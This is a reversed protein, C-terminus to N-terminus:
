KIKFQFEARAKEVKFTNIKLVANATHLQDPHFYVEPLVGDKKLHGLLNEKVGQSLEKRVERPIRGRVIKIGQCRIQEVNPLHHIDM